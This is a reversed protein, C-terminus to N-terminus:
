VPAPITFPPPEKNILANILQVNRPICVTELDYNTVMDQRAQVGLHTYAAPNDLVESTRAAVETPNFFDVLLGNEGDRLVEVVPQTRSGIITCGASMSEMMSWSLVFPYTLYIHATSIQLVKLFVSYPVRGMFHLKSHDVQDRVEDLYVEKHSRGEDAKKGYSVGDGGIIVFHADPHRRQIEPVARIFSHYGRYPELNRNVFTVVKNSRDLLPGGDPIQLSVSPNPCAGKTEIGDHIVSVKRQHFAPLTQWQWRTPTVSWDVAEASLLNNANKVRVRFKDDFAMPFEPDFDVDQDQSRYYFESFGLTPAHPFVDKVFLAEGWGPHVCVVDPAWGKDRLGILVRAVAQGRRVAGELNQVYHHTTNSAGRPRGYGLVTLGPPIVLKEMNEKEGIAYVEHGLVNAMYPAIYKYQGPFNQHIFLIKAM